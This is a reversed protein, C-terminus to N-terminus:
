KLKSNIESLRKSLEAKRLEKNRKDVAEDLAFFIIAKVIPLYEQCEEEELEHVGKSLTGYMHSNDNFYEPLSDKVYKLKGEMRLGRFETEPIKDVITSEQFATLILGEFIRRYYLFSAIAYGYSELQSAKGLEKLQNKHLIKKYKNFNDIVSDYKSPYEAIKILQNGDKYFGFLIQHERNASCRFTKYLSPKNRIATGSSYHSNIARATDYVGRDPAFVRKSECETCYHEVRDEYSSILYDITYDELEQDENKLQINNEWKSYLPSEFIIKKIDMSNKQITALAMNSVGHPQ